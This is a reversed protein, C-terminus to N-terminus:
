RLEYIAADHVRDPPTAVVLLADDPPGGGDLDHCCHRIRTLPPSILQEATPMGVREFRITDAPTLSRSGDRDEYVALRYVKGDRQAVIWAGDDATGGGDLDYCCRDVTVRPEPALLVIAVIASISALLSVPWLRNLRFSGAELVPQEGRRVRGLVEAGLSARPKFRVRRLLSHLQDLDEPPQIDRHDNM